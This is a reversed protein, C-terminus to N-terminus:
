LSNIEAQYIGARAKTASFENRLRDIELKHNAIKAEIENLRSQQLKYTGHKSLAIILAVERSKENTYKLKGSDGNVEQQIEFMMEAKIQGIDLGVDTRTIEETNLNLQLGVIKTPIAELNDVISQIDYEEALENRRAWRHAMLGAENLDRLDRVDIRNLSM